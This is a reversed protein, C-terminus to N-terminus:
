HFSDNIPNHKNNENVKSQDIVKDGEMCTKSRKQALIYLLAGFAVISLAHYSM